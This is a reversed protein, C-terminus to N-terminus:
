GIAVGVSGGTQNLKRTISEIREAASNFAGVVADSGAREL